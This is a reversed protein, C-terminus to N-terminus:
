SNADRRETQLGLEVNWEVLLMALAHAQEHLSALEEITNKAGTYLKIKRHKNALPHQLHQTRYLELKWRLSHAANRYYILKTELTIPNFTNLAGFIRADLALVISEKCNADAIVTATRPLGVLSAMDGFLEGPTIYNILDGTTPSEVYVALRGKLLFYLWHDQDGKRLVIENPVYTIYQSADLLLEFQRLDQQKVTKFFPIGSLLHDLTEKPVKHLSRADM